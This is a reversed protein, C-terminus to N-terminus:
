TPRTLWLLLIKVTTLFCFFDPRERMHQYFVRGPSFLAVFPFCTLTLSKLKKQATYITRYKM